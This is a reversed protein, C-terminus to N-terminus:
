EAGTELISLLFAELSEVGLPNCPFYFANKDGGYFVMISYSKGDRTHGFLLSGGLRNATCIAGFVLNYNIESWDVYEPAGPTSSENGKVKVFASLKGSQQAQKSAKGDGRSM